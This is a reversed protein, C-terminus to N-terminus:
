PGRPGYDAVSVVAGTRGVQFLLFPRLFLKIILDERFFTGSVLISRPAEQNGPSMAVSLAVACMM